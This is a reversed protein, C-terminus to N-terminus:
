MAHSYDLLQVATLTGLFWSLLDDTANVSKLLRLANLLQETPPTTETGNIAAPRLYDQALNWAKLALVCDRPFDSSPAPM